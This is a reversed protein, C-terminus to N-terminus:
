RRKLPSTGQVTSRPQPVLVKTMTFLPTGFLEHPGEESPRFGSREYLAIASALFPTTSLELRRIGCEGAYREVQELLLRGVSRGRVEPVVAMSRVYLAEGRSVAAVTGVVADRLLAIWTPGEGLRARSRQRRPHPRPSPLALTSPHTSPSRRTCYRRSRRPM